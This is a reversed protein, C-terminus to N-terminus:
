EAESIFSHLFCSHLGRYFLISCFVVVSGDTHSVKLYNLEKTAELLPPKVILFASVIITKHLLQYHKLVFRILTSKAMKHIICSVSVDKGDQYM